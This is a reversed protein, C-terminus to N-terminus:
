AGFFFQPGFVTARFVESAAQYKAAVADPSAAIFAAAHTSVPPPPTTTPPEKARRLKSTSEVIIPINKLTVEYEGGAVVSTIHGFHWKKDFYLTKVLDGKRLQCADICQM